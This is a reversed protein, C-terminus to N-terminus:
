PEGAPDDVGTSQSIWDLYPRHGGDLPVEIIEPVDYSHLEAVRERLRTCLPARTKIIMLHERAQEVAGEWRYISQVPGVINVCAALREEVITRAIHAAEVENGTTVFVMRADCVAASEM